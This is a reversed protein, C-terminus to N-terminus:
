DGLMVGCETCSPRVNCEMSHRIAERYPSIYNCGYNKCKLSTCELEEM